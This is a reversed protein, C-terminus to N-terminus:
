AAAKALTDGTEANFLHLKDAPLKLTVVDGPIVRHASDVVAVIEHEGVSVHLLEENGLYEVVDATGQVTGTQKVLKIDDTTWKSTLVHYKLVAQLKAKDKALGDLVDRPVKAFAEDTPAFVTYPGPGKMVGVLDADAFSVGASVERDDYLVAVGAADLAAYLTGAATRVEPNRHAGPACVHVDYPAVSTPWCLGHVDRFTEALVAIVRSVGFGYCGMWFPRESGDEATFTMGPMAFAGPEATYTVGLQFIHAAEVSRVIELSAGCRTCRDGARAVVYDGVGSATFDRGYVVDALHADAENAQEPFTRMYWERKAKATSYVFIHFCGPQKMLACAAGAGELQELPDVEARV